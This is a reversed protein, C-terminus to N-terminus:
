KIHGQDRIEKLSTEARQLRDPSADNIVTIPVSQNISSLRARWTSERILAPILVEPEMISEREPVVTDEHKEVFQRMARPIRRNKIRSRGEQRDLIGSSLAVGIERCAVDRV